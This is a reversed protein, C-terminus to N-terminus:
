LSPRSFKAIFEIHRTQPFMDIPQLEKFDFQDKLFQVDQSFTQVSCSIYIIHKLQKHILHPLAGSLGGRPPDVILTDYAGKFEAPLRRLTNRDVTDVLFAMPSTDADIGMSERKKKAQGIALENSDIAIIKKVLSHYAFTLNGNGCFLELVTKSHSGRVYDSLRKQLLANQEENIQRFGDAGHPENNVNTVEGNENLYLEIKQIADAQSLGQARIKKIEENIQPRATQCNEIDVLDHSKKKYFGLQGKGIRLQIRNRYNLPSKAELIPLVREATLGARKLATEIVKQKGKLQDAYNWDLWDCGGCQHFYRCPSEVREKSPTVIELLECEFYKKDQSVVAVRVTDGPLARPVFYINGATDSGVGQGLVSIRSIDIVKEMLGREHGLAYSKALDKVLREDCNFFPSSSAREADGRHKKRGNRATAM